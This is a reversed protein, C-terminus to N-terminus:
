AKCLKSKVTLRPSNIMIIPGEPQPLVVRSLIMPRSSLALEPSYRRAPLFTSRMEERLFAWKRALSIPKM